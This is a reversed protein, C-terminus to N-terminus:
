GRRDRRRPRPRAQVGSTASSRAAFAADSGMGVASLTLLNVGEVACIWASCPTSRSTSPRALDDGQDAGVAGALRRQQHRDAAVRARPAPLMTKSPSSMVWSGVCSITRRPMAWAGSPRRMKGRMVTSSFRCIPAAERSGACKSPLVELPHERQERTRLSRARGARRCATPRRAASAPSRGRASPRGRSSSSSSGDSPRAGSITLCIKSAM